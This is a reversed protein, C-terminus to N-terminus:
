TGAEEFLMVSVSAGEPVTRVTDSGSVKRTTIKIVDNVNVERIIRISRTDTNFLILLGAPTAVVIPASVADPTIVQDLILVPETVIVTVAAADPIETRKISIIGWPQILIRLPEHLEIKTYVTVTPKGVAMTVTNPTILLKLSIPYTIVDVPITLVDPTKTHVLVQVLTPVTVNVILASQLPISRNLSNSIRVSPAIAQIICPTGTITPIKRSLPVSIPVSVADPKLTLVHTVTSSPAVIPATVADPYSTIGIPPIVITAAMWGKSASITFVSPDETEVLPDGNRQGYGLGCGGLTGVTLSGTSIYGFPFADTTIANGDHGEAAIFLYTEPGTLPSLSPSDPSVSSGGAFTVEPPSRSPVEHDVIRYVVACFTESTNTTVTITSGEGGDCQRYAVSMAIGSDEDMIETYGAPWSFSQNISLDTIIVIILLDGNSTTPLSVVQSTSATARSSETKSIVAPFLTAM